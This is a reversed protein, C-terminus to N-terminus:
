PSAPTSAPSIAEADGRGIRQVLTASSGGFFSTPLLTFRPPIPRSRFFALLIERAEPATLVVSIPVDVVAPAHLRVLEAAPLDGRAFVGTKEVDGGFLSAEVVRREPEGYCWMRSGTDKDTLLCAALSGDFADIDQRINEESSLPREIRQQDVTVEWSWRRAVNERRGAQILQWAGEAGVAAIILQGIGYLFRDGNDRFRVREGYKQTYGAIHPNLLVECGGYGFGLTLVVILVLGLSSAGRM